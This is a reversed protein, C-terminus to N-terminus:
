KTLQPQDVIPRQWPFPPFKKSIPWVTDLTLADYVEGSKVVYKIDVTSRINELPNSNLIVLDAVKGPEISGLDDELGLVRAGNLTAIRLIEANNLGGSEFAWWRRHPGIGSQPNDTGSVVNGGARLLDASINALPIPFYEDATRESTDSKKEMYRQAAMPTYWAKQLPTLGLAKNKIRGAATPYESTSYTTGSRAYLEIVDRYVPRYFMIHETAAYGDLVHQLFTLQQWFMEITAHIGVEAAAMNLWQREIRTNQGYEKLLFSGGSKSKQVLHRAAALDPIDERAARSGNWPAIVSLTGFWRPGTMEGAEILEEVAFAEYGFAPDRVTTMGFALTVAYGIHQESTAYTLHARHEHSPILGPIITKGTVDIVKTGSPVSLSDSPGVAKIRYGDILIDGREIVMPDTEVMDRGDVARKRKIGNASMTVVRAGRLLLQGTPLRRPVVLDIQAVPLSTGVAGHSASEIPIRYLQNTWNWSIYKSDHSWLPSTGGTTTLNILNTDKKPGYLRILPISDGSLIRPFRVVAVNYGYQLALWRGDPSPSAKEVPGEFRVLRSKKGTILSMGTLEWDAGGGKLYFVRSGDGSISLVGALEGMMDAPFSAGANSGNAEVWGVDSLPWGGEQFTFRIPGASDQFFVIRSGDPTWRPALYHSPVRTLQIPRGNGEVSAKWLQGKASDSWTVYSIWRGDPSFAPYYERLMSSTLRKPKQSRDAANMVWVKGVASFTIFRGDPSQSISRLQRVHLPGFDLRSKNHVLPALEARVDVSFPINTLDGTSIDIKNLKGHAMFVVARSDPTFAYSATSLFGINQQVTSALVSDQHTRLDRIRLENSEDFGNIRPKAAYILWRGDASVIPNIGNARPVSITDIRGTKTDFTALGGGGMGGEGNMWGYYLTNGDPAFGAGSVFKNGFNGLDVGVGNIPDYRWFHYPLATRRQGRHARAILSRGDPSWIPQVLVYTMTDNIVDMYRTVRRAGSGDSRMTWLNSQGNRDSVFAITKSDPSFRPSADWAIGHTLQVAKGGVSPVTYIDGLMDFVITKGDPAIDISMNTGETTTFEITRTPKLPLSREAPGTSSDQYQAHM